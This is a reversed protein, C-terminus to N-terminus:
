KKRRLAKFQSPQIIWIIKSKIKNQMIKIDIRCVCSKKLKFIKPDTNLLNSLKESLDPEHGVFLVKKFEKLNILLKIFDDQNTGPLLENIVKIKTKLNFEEAVISATQLARKLPSTFIIDFNKVIKKLGKAVIISKKIGEETLPREADNNLYIPLKKDAALGHRMFYIQM